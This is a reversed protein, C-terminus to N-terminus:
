QTLQLTGIDESTGISVANGNKDQEERTAFWSLSGQWAEELLFLTLSLNTSDFTAPDFSQPQLAGALQELPIQTFLSVLETSQASLTTSTSEHLSGDELSIQLSMPIEIVPPCLDDSAVSVFEGSQTFGSAIHRILRIPEGQYSLNMTANQLLTGLQTDSLEGQWAGQSADVVDAASFSLGDPITNLSVIEINEETCTPSLPVESGSQGGDVELCGGFLFLLWFLRRM